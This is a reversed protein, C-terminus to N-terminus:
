QGWDIMQEGNYTYNIDLTIPLPRQNSGDANMVWVRWAGAENNDDRNSLYAVYQGDPSWTPSVNSPLQNVLTTVPRTLATLGSGDPNVAFIEWHPGEKSQFVIRGGGPQWDPDWDYGDYYIKSTTADDEDKTLQIGATSQYVIGGSNWDPARASTLAPLDRYEEGNVAVRAIMWEPREERDVDGFLDDVLGPAPPLNFQNVIEADTLCIGFGFNRCKYFGDNRSFVIWKGDPSWKPSMLGDREGFIKRENSGDANILYIGNANGIRSFAIQNGDPSLSPDLGSSVARLEGTALHYLYFTEGWGSQIVLKGSLGTPGTRQVATTPAAQTTATAATPNDAATTSPSSVPTNTPAPAATENEEATVPLNAIPESVVVFNAAVWGLGGTLDPVALQVWSSDANRGQVIFVERPLAKGIVPFTTGPGSRINLRSGTMAVQATPQGDAEPTPRMAQTPTSARGPSTTATTTLSATVTATVAPSVTTTVTTTAPQTVEDAAAASAAASADRVPLNRVNFVVVETVDVWGSAGDTTRVFLTNSDTTRGIATLATGTSLTRLTEGDPTTRLATGASGVVAILETQGSVPITATPPVPTPTPPVATPTATPLPTATPPVPTPTPPVATTAANTATAGETATVNAESTATPSQAPTELVVPLQDTGFIVIAQTEVWGTQKDDTQVIVWLSDATRGVATLTAGPTLAEVVAGDPLDYLDAGQAGVVALRGQPNANQAHAISQLCLPAALTLSYFAILAFFSLGWLRAWRLAPSSFAKPIHMIPDSRRSNFRLM